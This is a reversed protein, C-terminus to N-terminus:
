NVRETEEEEDTVSCPRDMTDDKDRRRRYNRCPAMKMNHRFFLCWKWTKDYFCSFLSFFTQPFSVRPRGAGRHHCSQKVMLEVMVYPM